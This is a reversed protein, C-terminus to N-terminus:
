LSKKDTGSRCSEMLKFNAESEELDEEEIITMSRSGFAAGREDTHTSLHNNSSTNDLGSISHTVSSMGSDGEISSSKFHKTEKYTDEISIMEESIECLNMTNDGEVEGSGNPEYTPAQINSTSL